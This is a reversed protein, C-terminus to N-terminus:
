PDSVYRPDVDNLASSPVRQQRFFNRSSFNKNGPSLSQANMVDVAVDDNCKFVM